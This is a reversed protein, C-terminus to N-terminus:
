KGRTIVGLERMAILDISTLSLLPLKEISVAGQVNVEAEAEEAMQDNFKEIRKQRNAFKKKNKTEKDKDLGLKQWARQRTIQYDTFANWVAEVPLVLLAAQESPLKTSCIREVATRRMWIDKVRIIM